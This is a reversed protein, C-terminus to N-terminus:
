QSIRASTFLTLTYYFYGLYNIKLPRLTKKSVFKPFPCIPDHPHPPAPFVSWDAFAWAGADSAQFIGPIDAAFQAAAGGGGGGSGATTLFHENNVIHILFVTIGCKIQRCLIHTREKIISVPSDSRQIHVYCGSSEALIYRLSRLNCDPLSIKIKPENPKDVLSGQVIMSQGDYDNADDQMPMPTPM